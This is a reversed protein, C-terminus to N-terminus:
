ICDGQTIESLEKLTGNEIIFKQEYCTEDASDAPKYKMIIGRSEKKSLPISIYREGNIEMATIENINYDAFINEDVKGNSVDVLTLYMCGTGCSNRVIAYKGNYNITLDVAKNIDNFIMGEEKRYGEPLVIEGKYVNKAPYKKFFADDQAFVTNISGLIFVALLIYVIKEM